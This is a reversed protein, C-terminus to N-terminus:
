INNLFDEFVEENAFENSQNKVIVIIKENNNSIIDVLEELEKFPYEVIEGTVVDVEYDFNNIDIIVKKDSNIIKELKEDNENENNDKNIQLFGKENIEYKCNVNGQLLKLFDEKSHESIWIGNEQPYNQNYIEDIENLVPKSQKIIGAFAVKYLIDKKVNLTKRGDYETTIEYLDSDATLNMEQKLEDVTVDSKYNITNKDIKSFENNWKEKATFINKLIILSVVIAIIIIIAITTLLINKKKKM